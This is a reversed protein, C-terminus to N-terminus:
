IQNFTGETYFTYLERKKSKLLYYNVKESIFFESNKSKRLFSYFYTLWWCRVCQRFAMRFRVHKMLLIRLYFIFNIFSVNFCTLDIWIKNITGHAYKFKTELLVHANMLFNVYDFNLSFSLSLIPPLVVFRHYVFGPFLFILSKKWYFENFSWFFSGRSLPLVWVFRKSM